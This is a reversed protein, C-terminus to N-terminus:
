HQFCIFRSIPWFCLYFGPSFSLCSVSLRSFHSQLIGIRGWDTAISGCSGLELIVYFIIHAFILKICIHWVALMYLIYRDNICNYWLIGPNLGKPCCFFSNNSTKVAFSNSGFWAVAHVGRKLAFCNAYCMVCFSIVYGM